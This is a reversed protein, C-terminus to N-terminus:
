INEIYKQQKRLSHGKIIINHYGKMTPLKFDNNQKTVNM